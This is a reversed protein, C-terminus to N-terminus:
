FSPVSKLCLLVAMIVKAGSGMPCWSNFSFMQKRGLSCIFFKSGESCIREQLLVPLDWKPLVKKDLFVFLFDCFGNGKKFFASLDCLDAIYRSYKSNM